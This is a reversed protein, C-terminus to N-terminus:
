YGPPAFIRLEGLPWYSFLAVGFIRARPLPGYDHSDTSHRRNDGLVFYDDPGLQWIGSYYAHNRVYPEDLRVGDIYVDGHIIEVREGPLGILRKVVNIEGIPSQAVVLGGRQLRPVLEIDVTFLREREHLNPEMSHGEVVYRPFLLNIVLMLGIAWTLPHFWKRSLRQWDITPRRSQASRPEYLMSADIRRPNIQM